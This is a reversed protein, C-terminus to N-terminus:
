CCSYQRHESTARVGVCVPRSFPEWGCYLDCLICNKAASATFVACTVLVVQPHSFSRGGPWLM